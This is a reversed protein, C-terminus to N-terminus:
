CIDLGPSPLFYASLLINLSNIYKNLLKYTSHYAIITVSAFGANEMGSYTASSYKHQKQPVVIQSKLQPAM